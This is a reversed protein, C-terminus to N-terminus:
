FHLTLGGVIRKPPRVVLLEDYVSQDNAPDRFFNRVAILMEWRASSFDMFPLAQRVQVDFRSDVAPAGSAPQGNANRPRAFGNSVRYLVMVKTSTEPVETELSTTVDRIQQAELQAAAPALLMVYGLDSPQWRANTQGYEISGHVREAIATRFGAAWGIADVDGSNALFYHGLDAAPRGPMDLGFITVLQDNVHQRFARVTITSGAIDREVDVEAHTTREASLPMGASLPSFTRQPPLLIASDAPPLFEEAGPAVARSAVLTSIRVHNAPSLTLAVRPSILSRSELYDYRAYRAGYSLTIAPTITFADYGYITGANRSGDTLDFLIAANSGDYRQTAYSLGLDYRHRAPTRTVYEGAIIWSAIDGQTLAGRVNWDAHQGVPAGLSVYAVSRGLSDVSFLQQPSDFSSTTFLNVQGSFATDGLFGSAARAPSQFASGFIGGADFGRAPPDDAAGLMADLATADKLIGRRAHRLRWATESHDDGTVSGTTGTAGAEPISPEDGGVFGAAAVPLASAPTSASAAHHLAIASSARASPRVDVIQGHSAVYGSLHARVLYPGPSLTRMEFRGARDTVAFATTAGLASVMAGAVPFGKEDQVVGQIAGPALAAMRAVAPPLSGGQAVAARPCLCLVGLGVVFASAISGSRTKM